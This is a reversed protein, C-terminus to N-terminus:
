LHSNRRLNGPQDLLKRFFRSNIGNAIMQQAASHLLEQYQEAREAFTREHQGKKKCIWESTIEGLWREALREARMEYVSQLNRNSRRQEYTLDYCHRCAFRWAHLDGIFYTQPLYVKGVRWGCEPCLLWARQGGFHCPTRVLHIKQTRDIGDRTFHLHLLSDEFDWRIAFTEDDQWMQAPQFYGWVSMIHCSEIPVHMRGTRYGGKNM